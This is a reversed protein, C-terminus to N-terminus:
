RGRRVRSKPCIRVDTQNMSSSRKDGEVDLRKDFLQPVVDRRDSPGMRLRHPRRKLTTRSEDKGVDLKRVAARPEVCDILDQSQLFDRHNEDGGKRLPKEGPLAGSGANRIVLGNLASETLATTLWARKKSRLDCLDM